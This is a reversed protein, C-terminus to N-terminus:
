EESIKEVLTQGISQKGVIKVCDPCAENYYKIRDGRFIFFPNVWYENGKRHCIVGNDVLSDKATGATNRSIGMENCIKETHLNITDKEKGITAMIYLFLNRGAQSLVKFLYNCFETNSGIKYM